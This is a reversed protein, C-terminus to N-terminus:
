GRMLSSAGRRSLCMLRSSCRVSSLCPAVVDDVAVVVDFLGRDKSLKVTSRAQFETSIFVFRRGAGEVPTCGREGYAFDVGVVKVLEKFGSKRGAVAFEGSRREIGDPVDRPVGRAVYLLKTVRYPVACVVPLDNGLFFDVLPKFDDKGAFPIMVFDEDSAERRELHAHQRGQRGFAPSLDEGHLKERCRGDKVCGRHLPRYVPEHGVSGHEVVVPFVAEDVWEEAFPDSALYSTEGERHMM